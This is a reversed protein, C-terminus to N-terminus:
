NNNNLLKIIPKIKFFYNRIWKSILYKKTIKEKKKTILQPKLIFCNKEKNFQSAKFM